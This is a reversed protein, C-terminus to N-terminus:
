MARCVVICAAGSRQPFTRSYNSPRVKTPAVLSLRWKKSSPVADGNEVRPKTAVNNESERGFRKILSRSRKKEEKEKGNTEAGECGDCDEAAGPQGVVALPLPESERKKEEGDSQTALITLGHDVDNHVAAINGRRSRVKRRKAPPRHLLPEKRQFFSDISKM